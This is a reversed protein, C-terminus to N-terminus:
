VHSLEGDITYGKNKDYLFRVGFLGVCILFFIIFILYNQSSNKSSMLSALLPMSGGVVSSGVSIILGTSKVCISSPFYNPIINLIIVTLLQCFAVTGAQISLSYYLSCEISLTYFLPKLFLLLGSLAIFLMIFINLKIKDLLLGWGV